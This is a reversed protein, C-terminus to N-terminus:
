GRDVPEARVPEARSGAVRTAQGGAQGEALRKLTRMQKRMMVLDAAPLLPAVLRFPGSPRRIIMKVILRSGGTAPVVQYTVAIEGFMRAAAPRDLVMTIHSDQEHDVLRFITMIRQGSALEELGPTLTRPSRRGLNDIWDYSYPGARLQCLWRYVVEPPAAVDIARFCVDDPEALWRDCPYSRAREEETSGWTRATSM